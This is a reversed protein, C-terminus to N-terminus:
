SHGFLKGVLREVAEARRTAALTRIREIHLQTERSIRAKEAQAEDRVRAADHDGGAEPGEGALIQEARKRADAVTREAEQRARSTLEDASKEAELLRSVGPSSATAM